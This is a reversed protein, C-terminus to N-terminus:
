SRHPPTFNKMYEALVQAVLQAGHQSFHGDNQLFLTHREPHQRIMERLSLFPINEARCFNHLIEEYVPEEEAYREGGVYIFVNIFIINNQQAVTHMKRVADLHFQM